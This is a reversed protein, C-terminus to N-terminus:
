RLSQSRNSNLDRVDEHLHKKLARTLSIMGLAFAAGVGLIVGYGTGQSLPPIASTVNSVMTSLFVRFLWRLGTKEM